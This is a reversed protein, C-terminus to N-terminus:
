KCIFSIKIFLKTKFHNLFVMDPDHPPVTRMFDYSMEVQAAYYGMFLTIAGIVAILLIRFRIILDAIKSWM